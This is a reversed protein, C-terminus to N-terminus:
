QFADGCGLSVGVPRRHSPWIAHSRHLRLITPCGSPTHDIRRLDAKNAKANAKLKVAGMLDSACSAPTLPMGCPGPLMPPTLLVMLSGLPMPLAAFSGGNGDGLVAGDTTGAVGGTTELRERGTGTTVVPPLWRM